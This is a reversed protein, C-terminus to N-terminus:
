EQKEGYRGAIHKLLARTKGDILAFDTAERYWEELRDHVTRAERLRDVATDILAKAAKQQFRLLQKRGKLREMDTFRTYHITQAPRIGSLDCRGGVTVLGLGLAPILLGQLRTKPFLPDYCGYLTYGRELAYTKIMALLFGSAVGYPDELLVVRHCLATVTDKFTVVGDPTIGTLLRRHERGQEGTPKLRRDTFRYAFDALKRFDTASEVLAGTDQELTAACQLLSVCKKHCTSCATQVEMLQSLRTALKEEQLAESLDVVTEFGGPYAPEVAHPHTADLLCCRGDHLVVGDLSAPDSACHIREVLGEQGRAARKLMTSKGTGPGGKILYCRHGPRPRCLDEMYSTFGGPADGGMFFDVQLQEKEM